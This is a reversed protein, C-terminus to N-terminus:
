EFPELKAELDVLELDCRGISRVKVDEKRWTKFAPGGAWVDYTGAGGPALSIQSVERDSIFLSDGGTGGIEQAAAYVNTVPEGTEANQVHVIISPVGVANCVEEEFFSCGSVFIFCICASLINIRM